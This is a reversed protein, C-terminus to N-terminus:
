ADPPAEVTSGAEGSAADGSARGGPSPMALAIASLALELLTSWVRAAFAIIASTGPGVVPTILLALVLERPGLGGPAFLVILGVVSAAGYAGAFVLPNFAVGRQLAMAFFQMGFGAVIWSLGYVFFLVLSIGYSLSPPEQKVRAVKFAVGLARSFVVPHLAAV